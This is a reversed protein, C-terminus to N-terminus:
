ALPASATLSDFFFRIILGAAQFIGVFVFIRIATTLSYLGPFCRILGYWTRAVSLPPRESNQTM